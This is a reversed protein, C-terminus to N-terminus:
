LKIHNTTMFTGMDKLVHIYTKGDAENFVVQDIQWEFFAGGNAFFGRFTEANGAGLNLGSIIGEVSWEYNMVPSLGETLCETATRDFYGNNSICEKVQSKEEESGVNAGINVAAFGQEGTADASVQTSSDVAPGNPNNNPLNGGANAEPLAPPPQNGCSVILLTLGALLALSIRNGRFKSVLANRM